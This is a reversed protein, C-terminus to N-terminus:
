YKELHNSVTLAVQVPDLLVVLELLGFCVSVDSLIDLKVEGGLNLLDGVLESEVLLPEVIVQNREAPARRVLGRERLVLVRFILYKQLLLQLLFLPASARALQLGGRGVIALHLQHLAYYCSSFAPDRNKKAKAPLAREFPGLCRPLLQSISFSLLSM